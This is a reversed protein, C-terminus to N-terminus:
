WRAAQASRAVARWPEVMMWQGNRQSIAPKGRRLRLAFAPQRPQIQV